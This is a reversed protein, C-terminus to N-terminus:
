IKILSCALLCAHMGPITVLLILKSQVILEFDMMINDGPDADNTAM